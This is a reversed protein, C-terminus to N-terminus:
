TSPSEDAVPLTETEKREKRLDAMRINVSRMLDIGQQEAKMFMDVAMYALRSVEYDYDTKDILCAPAVGFFEGITAQTEGGLMWPEFQQANGTYKGNEDRGYDDATRPAPLAAIQAKEFDTHNFTDRSM